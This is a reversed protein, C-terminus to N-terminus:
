HVHSFYGAVGQELTTADIVQSKGLGYDELAQDVDVVGLVTHATIDLCCGNAGFGTFKPKMDAGLPSVGAYILVHHFRASPSGHDELVIVGVAVHPLAGNTNSPPASYM